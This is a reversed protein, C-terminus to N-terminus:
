IILFGNSALSTALMVMNIERHERFGGFQWNKRQSWFTEIAGALSLYNILSAVIEHIFGDREFSNKNDIFWKQVSKVGKFGISLVLERFPLRYDPPVGPPSSKVFSGIGMLASNLILERLNSYDKYGKMIFQAVRSTDFLLGGVGYLNSTAWNM